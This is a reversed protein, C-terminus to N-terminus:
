DRRDLFLADRLITKGERTVTTRLDLADMAWRDGYAARGSTFGDLLVCAGAGRLAVDVRQRYRAGAFAAVPDPLLVFTGEVEARITQASAGRFAKTSSQTFLVVVAGKGVSVDLAIADGDVLGGGF